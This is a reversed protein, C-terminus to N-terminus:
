LKEKIVSKYFLKIGEELGILPKWNLKKLKENNGTCGNQDGEYQGINKIKFVKNHAKFITDLLEKVTTKTSTCVNYTQNKTKDDLGLILANVVDDIYIFNRYRNLSGKVEITNSKLSQALYISVMGQDLNELDQGFGYVNFLRFITYDIGYEKYQKLYLEGCFKSIGYHSIPNVKDIEKKFDGDGYVSMSSTYIIKKIKNEKAFRCVNLTGKINWDIDKDPDILGTYGSTQAAIHYIADIDKPLRNFNKYESLNFGYFNFDNSINPKQTIKESFDVILIEHGLKKLKNALHNGIFGAGGTVLIKM